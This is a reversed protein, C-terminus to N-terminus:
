KQKEPKEVDSKVFVADIYIIKGDKDYVQDLNGAYEFGLTDM